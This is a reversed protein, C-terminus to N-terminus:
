LRAREGTSERFTVAMRHNTVAMRDGLRHRRRSIVILNGDVKASARMGHMCLWFLAFSLVRARKPILFAMRKRTISYFSVEGADDRRLGDRLTPFSKM